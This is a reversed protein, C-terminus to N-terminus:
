IVAMYATRTTTVAYDTERSRVCTHIYVYKLDASFV